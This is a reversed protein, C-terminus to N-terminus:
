SCPFVQLSYTEHVIVKVMKETNKPFTQKLALLSSYRNYAANCHYNSSELFMLVCLHPRISGSNRGWLPSMTSQLSSSGVFHKGQQTWCWWSVSRSFHDNCKIFWLVSLLGHLTFSCRAAVSRLVSACIHGIELLKLYKIWTTKKHTSRLDLRRYLHRHQHQHQTTVGDPGTPLYWRKPYVYQKWWRGLLLFCNTGGFRQYRGVRGCSLLVVDVLIYNRRVM